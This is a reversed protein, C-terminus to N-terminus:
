EEIYDTPNKGDKESWNTSGKCNTFYILEGADRFRYVKCGDTEFLLEVDFSSNNTDAKKKAKNICSSIILIILILIFVKIKTM